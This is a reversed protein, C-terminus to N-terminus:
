IGAEIQIRRILERYNVVFEETIGYYGYRAYNILYKRINRNNDIDLTELETISKLEYEADLLHGKIVDVDANVRLAKITEDALSTLTTADM